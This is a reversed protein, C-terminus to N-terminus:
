NLDNLLEQLPPHHLLFPLLVIVIILLVLLFEYNLYIEVFIVQRLLPHQVLYVKCNLFFLFDVLEFVLLNSFVLLQLFHVQLLVVLPDLFSLKRSVFTKKQLGQLLVGFFVLVQVVFLLALGFSYLLAQILFFKLVLQALNLALM